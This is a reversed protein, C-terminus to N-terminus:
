KTLSTPKKRQRPKRIGGSKRKVPEGTIITKSIIKTGPKGALAARKQIAKTRKFVTKAM